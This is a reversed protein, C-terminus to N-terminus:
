SIGCPLVYRVRLVWCWFLKANTSLTTDWIKFKKDILVQFISVKCDILQAYIYRELNVFVATGFTHSLIKSLGSTGHKGRNSHESNIENVVGYVGQWGSSLITRNKSQTGLCTRLTALYKILTKSLICPRYWVVCELHIEDSNCHVMFPCSATGGSRTALSLYHFVCQAQLVGIRAKMELSGSLCKSRRIAKGVNSEAARSAGM